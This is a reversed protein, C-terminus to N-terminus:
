FYILINLNFCLKNSAKFRNLGATVDKIQLDLKDILTQDGKTISEEKKTKLDKLKKEIEGQEAEKAQVKADTQSKEFQNQGKGKM